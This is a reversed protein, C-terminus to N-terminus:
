LCGGFGEVDISECIAGDACPNPGDLACLAACQNGAGSVVCTFGAACDESGGCGAGQTGAGPKACLSGYVEQACASSPYDVYVFCGEGPPCDGNGQHLADCAFMTPKAGADACGPDVYSAEYGGDGGSGGSGFPDNGEHGADVPGGGTGTPLDVVSPSCGAFSAAGFAGLAVGSIAVHLGLWSSLRAM